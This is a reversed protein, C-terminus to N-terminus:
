LEFVEREQTMEAKAVVQIRWLAIKRHTDEHREIRHGCAVRGRHRELWRGLRKASIVDPHRADAAVELLADRLETSPSMGCREMVEAASLVKDGLAARWATVVRELEARGPDSQETAAQTQVPDAWGCWRLAGRIWRDWEEFGGLVKGCRAPRGAAHYAHLVILGAQILAHRHEPLWKKLDRKFERFEPRKVGADIRCLLTRRVLDGRVALNNGTAVILTNTPVTMVRSAGLPRFTYTAQSLMSCLAEGDLPREINDLAVMAPGALLLSSLRKETEEPDRGYSAVSAPRGTLVLATVDTLLSKGSGASPADFAFLPATPLTKRVLGTLLAAVAVARDLPTAFPFEEFPRALVDLAAKADDLTPRVPLRVPPGDYDMFLGSARDFGPRALLSGDERLTPCELVGRLVPVRWEGAAALYARAVKEPCDVPVFGKARGDYKQWEVLRTWALALWTENVERIELTGAAVKVGKADAPKDTRVPHALQGARQYVDLGEFLMEAEAKRLVAPLEGGTVYIRRLDRVAEDIQKKVLDGGLQDLDNFDTGEPAEGGEEGLDFNPICWGAGGVLVKAADRAKERGVNTNGFRDNDGCVLVRARPYRDRLALAVPKLNGADFAVAVPHGTREYLTAGTAYGECLLVLSPKEGLSIPYFCGNKHGGILFRKNGQGDITQVSTVVGGADQVPILLLESSQRLGHPGVRKKVLYPHVSDAAGSRALWRMAKEQARRHRSREEAEEARKREAMRAMHAAWAAPDVDSEQNFCWTEKIGLRWCGFVGAPIGDSHVRYFGSPSREKEVRFRVLRQTDLRIDEPPEIGAKLM